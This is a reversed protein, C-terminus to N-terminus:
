SLETNVKKKELFLFEFESLSFLKALTVYSTLALNVSCLELPGFAKAWEVALAIMLIVQILFM